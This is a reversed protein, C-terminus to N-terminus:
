GGYHGREDRAAKTATYIKMQDILKEVLNGLRGHEDVSDRLAGCAEIAKDQLALATETFKQADQVRALQEAKIQEGFDKIQALYALREAVQQQDKRYIWVVLLACIIGLAGYQLLGQLITDM